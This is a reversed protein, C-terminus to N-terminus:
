CEVMERLTKISEIWETKEEGLTLGYDGLLEDLDNMTDELMVILSDIRELKNM